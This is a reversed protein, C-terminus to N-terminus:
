RPARGNPLRPITIIMVLSNMKLREDEKLRHMVYIEIM